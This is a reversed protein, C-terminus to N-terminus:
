TCFFGDYSPMEAWKFYNGIQDDELFCTLLRPYYESLQMADLVESRWDLRMDIYAVDFQMFGLPLLCISLSSVGSALGCYHFTFLAQTRDVQMEDMFPIPRLLSSQNSAFERLSSQWFEKHLFPSLRVLDRLNLTYEM